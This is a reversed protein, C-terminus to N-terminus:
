IKLIDKCFLLVQNYIDKETDITFDILNDSVLSVNEKMWLYDNYNAISSSNNSNNRKDLREKIVKDSCVLRIIYYKYGLGNYYNLKDKYNHCFCSDMICSNGNKLLLELRYRQLENKLNNSSYDNLWKRVDDNNLIISGDLKAIEKAITTKGMGTYADFLIIYPNDKNGISIPFDNLFKKKIEENM